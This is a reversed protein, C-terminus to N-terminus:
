AGGLWGGGMRKYSSSLLLMNKLACGQQTSVGVAAWCIAPRHLLPQLLSLGLNSLLPQFWEEGVSLLEWLEEFDETCEWSFCTLTEAAQQM